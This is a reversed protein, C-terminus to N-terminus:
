FTRRIPKRKKTTQAISSLTHCSVTVNEGLIYQLLEQIKGWSRLMRESDNTFSPEKVHVTVHLPADQIIEFEQVNIQMEYMWRYTIDLITGAPILTGDEKMFSDNLRGDVQELQKWQMASPEPTSVTVFDGQVYRIFPMAYNILNTAVVLGTGKEKIQLTDPDIIDLRVTDECVYYKGDTMELAIRTLEESSYEDLVPIGLQKALISREHKTSQESHTVILQLKDKLKKSFHPLLTHLNSPYLSLIDPMQFDLIEAIEKPNILSSVFFSPYCSEKIQDIWWPVTYVHSLLHKENYAKESQLWFQRIGQLTDTVIAEINVFIRLTKGSSGSSRTPFLDAHNYKNNICLNPFADILEDKYTLPLKHYDDLSKFDNPHFGVQEYKKRYFPVHMFAETILKQLRKLQRLEIEERPLFPESFLEQMRKPTFENKIHAILTESITQRPIARGPEWYEIPERQHTKIQQTENQAVSM